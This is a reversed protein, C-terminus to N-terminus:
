LFFFSGCAVDNFERVKDNKFSRTNNNPATPIYSKEFIRQQTQANCPAQSPCSTYSSEERRQNSSSSMYTKSEMFQKSEYSSMSSGENKGCTKQIMSSAERQYFPEDTDAMYGSEQQFVRSKCKPPEPTVYIPPSGPKPLNVCVSNDQSFGQNQYHQQQKASREQRSMMTSSKKCSTLSQDTLYDPTVVPRPPGTVEAKPVEFSSPPPPGPETSRPRPQRPTPPQVRRYKPEDTESECPRWKSKCSEFDSEYDSEIFQGRAFTGCSFPETKKAPLPPPTKRADKPPIPPADEKKHSHMEFTKEFREIKRECTPPPPAYGIEPPPGPELIIEPEATPHYLQVVPRKPATALTGKFMSTSEQFTKIPEPKINDGPAHYLQVVPKAPVAKVLGPAKLEEYSMKDMSEMKKVECESSYKEMISKEQMSNVIHDVKTTEAKYMTVPTPAPKYAPAPVPASVPAPAPVKPKVVPKAPEEIVTQSIQNERTSWSRTELSSTSEIHTKTVGGGPIEEVEDRNEHTSTKYGVEPEKWEERKTFTKTTEKGAAPPPWSKRNAETTKSKAWYKEMAIGDASPKPSSPRGEFQSSAGSQCRYDSLDTSIHSRTELDSTSSWWKEQETKPPSLPAPVEKRHVDKKVCREEVVEKKCFEKSETLDFPPAIQMCTTKPKAESSKVPPVNATPFIKVGGIPADVSKKQFEQLQKAKSSVDIGKKVEEDPKPMYGIEPPPEPVLNFGSLMKEASESQAVLRSITLTGHIPSGSATTDELVTRQINLAPLKYDDYPFDIMVNDVGKTIIPAEFKHSIDQVSKKAPTEPIPKKVEEFKTSREYNKTLKDVKVDYNGDKDEETLKIMAKPGKPTMESDKSMSEFFSLADKKAITATEVNENEEAEKELTKSEVFETTRTTVPEGGKQTEHTSIKTTTTTVTPAAPTSSDGDFLSPAQHQLKMHFKQESKTESQHSEITSSIMESRTAKEVIEESHQTNKPGILEIKRIKSSSTSSSTPNLTKLTSSPQITTTAIHEATLAASPLESKKEEM